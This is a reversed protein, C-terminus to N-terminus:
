VSVGTCNLQIPPALGALAGIATVQRLAVSGFVTDCLRDVIIAELWVSCYIL